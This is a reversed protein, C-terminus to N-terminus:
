NAQRRKERVHISIQERSQLSNRQYKQRSHKQRLLPLQIRHIRDIITRLTIRVVHHPHHQSERLSKHRHRPNRKNDPHQQMNKRTLRRKIEPKIRKVPERHNKRSQYKGQTERKENKIEWHILFTLMARLVIIAGLIGLESWERVVVTRLVEGGMKFELALAIGQALNLRILQRKNRIWQVFCSVATSVLVIIGFLELVVTCIQVLNELLWDLVKIVEGM